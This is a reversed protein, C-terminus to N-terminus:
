VIVKRKFLRYAKLLALSLENWDVNEMEKAFLPISDYDKKSSASEPHHVIHNRIKYVRKGISKTSTKNNDENPLSLVSCFKARLSESLHEEFIGTICKDENPIVLYNKNLVDFVERHGMHSVGLEKMLQKAVYNTFLPEICRYIEFYCYQWKDATIAGILNLDIKVDNLSNVLENIMEPSFPLHKRSAKNLLYSRGVLRYLEERSTPKGEPSVLYLNFPGFFDLLRYQDIEGGMVIPSIYEIIEHAAINDRLRTKTFSVLPYIHLASVEMKVADCGDILELSGTVLIYHKEENREAGYEDTSKDVQRLLVVESKDFEITELERRWTKTMERDEATMKVLGEENNIQPVYPQFLSAIEKTVAKMNLHQGM